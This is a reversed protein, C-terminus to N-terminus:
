RAKWAPHKPDLPWGDPGFGTSYGRVEILQKTKDHCLKCLSQLEGLRFRNIDGGHPHVHDVVTAPEVRGAELCFKCLPNEQLQQRRRRQYTAKKYLGAQHYQESPTKILSVM